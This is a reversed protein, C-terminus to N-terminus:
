FGDANFFGSIKICFVFYIKDCSFFPPAISDIIIKICQFCHKVWINKETDVPLVNDANM